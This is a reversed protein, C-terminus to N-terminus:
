DIESVYCRAVGLYEGLRSTALRIIEDADTIQSLELDLQNIFQTNLEVQKNETIDHSAGIYGLFVGSSSFRPAGVSDLWRYEGNANLFRAQAHFPGLTNFAALYLGVYRETDDPHAHLKWGFGQVEALTMGLFDLYAKNVFECGADAGNIWILVP